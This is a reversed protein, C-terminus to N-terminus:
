NRASKQLSCISRNQNKIFDAFEKLKSNTLLFNDNYKSRSVNKELGMFEVQEDTFYICTFKDHLFKPIYTGIIFWEVWFSKANCFYDWVYEIDGEVHLYALNANSPIFEEKIKSPEKDNTCEISVYYRYDSIDFVPKIYSLFEDINDCNFLEIIIYIIDGKKSLKIFDWNCIEYNNSSNNTVKFVNKEKIAIDM